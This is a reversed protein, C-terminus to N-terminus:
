QKNTGTGGTITGSTSTSSPATTKNPALKSQVKNGWEDLKNGTKHAAKDLAAGTKSAANGVAQSAENGWQDLKQGARQMTGEDAHAGMPAMVALSLLFVAFARRRPPISYANEPLVM